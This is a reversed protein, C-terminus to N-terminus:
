FPSAAQLVVGRKYRCYDSTLVITPNSSKDTRPQFDGIYDYALKIVQGLTDLAALSRFRIRDVVREDAVDGVGAVISQADRVAAFPHEAIVDQGFVFAERLSFGGAPAQYQPVQTAETFEVGWGAAILGDAFVRSRDWNTATARQFGEDGYFSALLTSDIACGYLGNALKPVGRRKLISVAYPIMVSPDMVNTVAMNNAQTIPSGGSDLPRVVYSGDKYVPNLPDGITPPNAASAAGPDVAVIRDGSAASTGSFTAPTLTGSQGFAIGGSQMYSVNDTDITYNTFTGTAKILGTTKDVVVFSMPAQSSTAQPVKYLPLDATPYQLIFGNVNDVHIAGSSTQAAVAFTDGSDYNSLARNVCVLELSNGAKQALAYMNDLYLDAILTEQGYINTPIFGPWETLTANWQEFSRVDATMGNDLGTNDAPNLPTINPAILARSTFTKTEGIRGPFWDMPDIKRPRFVLTPVISKRIFTELFNQQEIVNLLAAPFGNGGSGNIPM